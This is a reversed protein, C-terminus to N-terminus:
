AVYLIGHLALGMLALTAIVQLPTDLRIRGPSLPLTAYNALRCSLTVLPLAQSLGSIMQDLYVLEKTLLKLADAFPQLTGWVGVANPGVRRQLCAMGKRDALTLYAVGLVVFLVAVAAIM